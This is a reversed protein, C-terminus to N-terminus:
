WATTAAKTARLPFCTSADSRELGACASQGANTTDIATSVIAHTATATM